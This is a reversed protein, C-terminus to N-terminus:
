FNGKLFLKSAPPQLVVTCAYMGSSASTGFQKELACGICSAPVDSKKAFM